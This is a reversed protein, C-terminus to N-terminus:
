RNECRPCELRINERQAVELWDDCAMFEDEHSNALHEEAESFTLMLSSCLKCRYASVPEIFRHDEKSKKSLSHLGDEIASPIRKKKSGCLAIPESALSQEFDLSKSYQVVFTEGNYDMYQETPM